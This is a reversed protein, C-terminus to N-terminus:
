WLQFLGSVIHSPHSVPGHVLGGVELGPEGWVSPHVGVAGLRGSLGPAAAPSARAAPPRSLALGGGGGTAM